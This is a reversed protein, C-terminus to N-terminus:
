IIYFHQELFIVRRIKVAMALIPPINQIKLELHKKTKKAIDVVRCDNKFFLKFM